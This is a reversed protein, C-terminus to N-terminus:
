WGTKRIRVVEGELIYFGYNNPRGWGDDITYWWVTVDRVLISRGRRIRIDKQVEEWEPEGFAERVKAPTDGISITTGGVQLFPQDTAEAWLPLLFTMVFVIPICQKMRKNMDTNNSYRAYFVLSFISALRKQLLPELIKLLLSILGHFYSKSTFSQGNRTHKSM